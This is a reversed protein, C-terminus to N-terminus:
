AAPEWDAQEYEPLNAVITRAVSNRYAVLYAYIKTNDTLYESCQYILCSLAKVSRRSVSRM